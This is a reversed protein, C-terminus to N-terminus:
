FECFKYGSSPDNEIVFGTCNQPDGYFANSDTTYLNQVTCQNSHNQYILILQDFNMDVPQGNADFTCSQLKANCGNGCTVYGINGYFKSMM